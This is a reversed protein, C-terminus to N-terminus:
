YWGYLRTPTKGWTGLAASRSVLDDLDDGPKVISLRLEHGATSEAFVLAVGAKHERIWAINPTDNPINLRFMSNDPYFRFSMPRLNGDDCRMEVKGSAGTTAIMGGLVEGASRPFEVQFRYEGTFTELGAWAAIAGNPSVSAIKPAQTAPKQNPQLEDIPSDPIGLTILDEVSRSRNRHYFYKEYEDIWAVNLDKGCDWLTKFTASAQKEYAEGRGFFTAEVNNRFGGASLNASSLAVWKVGGIAGAAAVSDCGIYIKPHFTAAGAVTRVRWGLQTAMRLAQPHTVADRVDTIWTVQEINNEGAIESLREVGFVSGYAVALAIEASPSAAAIRSLAPLFRKGGTGTPRLAFTM